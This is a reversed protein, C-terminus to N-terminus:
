AQWQCHEMDVCWGPDGANRHGSVPPIFLVGEEELLGRQRDPGGFAFGPALSGDRFVVRHCPIVGPSPNSHLAYGVFRASHPNGALAAVQGYTAVKGAPIRQVVQYVAANFSEVM